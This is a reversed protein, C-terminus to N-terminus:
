HKRNFFVNLRGAFANVDTPNIAKEIYHLDIEDAKLQLEALKNGSMLTIKEVSVGREVLLKATEYGSPKSVNADLLFWDIDSMEIQKDLVGQGSPVDIYRADDFIQSVAEKVLMRSFLSNDAVIINNPM